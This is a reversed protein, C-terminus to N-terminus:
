KRYKNELTKLLEKESERKSKNEARQKKLSKLKNARERRERYAAVKEPTDNELIDQLPISEYHREYGGYAWYEDTQIDVSDACIDISALGGPSERLANVREKIEEFANHLTQYSEKTIM